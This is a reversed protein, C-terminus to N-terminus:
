SEWLHSLSREVTQIEKDTAMVEWAPDAMAVYCNTVPEDSIVQWGIYNRMQDKTMDVFVSLTRTETETEVSM